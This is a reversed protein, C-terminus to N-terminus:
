KEPEASKNKAHGFNFAIIDFITKAVGLYKGYNKNPIIPSVASAIGIVMFVHEIVSQDIM